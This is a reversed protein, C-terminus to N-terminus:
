MIATFSKYEIELSVDDLARVVTDGLVYCRSVHELDIVANTM